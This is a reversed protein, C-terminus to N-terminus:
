RAKVGLSERGQGVHATMFEGFSAGIGVGRSGPIVFSTLFIAVFARPGEVNRQHTEAVTPLPLNLPLPRIVREGGPGAIGVACALLATQVPVSNRAVPDVVLRQIAKAGFALAIRSKSRRFVGRDCVGSM